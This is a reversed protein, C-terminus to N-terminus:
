YDNAEMVAKAWGMPTISRLNARNASPPLNHIYNKKVVETEKKAPMKFGHSTWLCTAKTYADRKWEEGLLYGAYQYPHFIYDPKRWLTSLRGIPNEILWECRCNPFLATREMIYEINVVMAIADDRVKAGKGTWWRAGSAALHTCPPFAYMMKVNEGVRDLLGLVAEQNDPSLDMHMATISGNGAEYMTSIGSHQIDLILCKYGAEAWPRVANGTYDFFSIVDYQM